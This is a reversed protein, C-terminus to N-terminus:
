SHIDSSIKKEIFCLFNEHFLYVFGFDPFSVQMKQTTADINQM